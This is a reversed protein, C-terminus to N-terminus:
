ILDKKERKEETEIKKGGMCQRCLLLAFIILINKGTRVVQGVVVSWDDLATHICGIKFLVVVAETLCPLVVRRFCADQKLHSSM